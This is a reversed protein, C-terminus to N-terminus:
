EKVEKCLKIAYKTVVMKRYGMKYKVLKRENILKLLTYTEPDIEEDIEEAWEELELSQDGIELDQKNFAFYRFLQIDEKEEADGDTYYFNVIKSIEANLEQERLKLQGYAILTKNIDM